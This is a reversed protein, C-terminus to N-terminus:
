IFHVPKEFVDFYNDNKNGEKLCIVYDTNSELATTLQMIHQIAVIMTIDYHTGNMFIFTLIQSTLANRNYGMDDLVIVVRLDTDRDSEGIDKQLQLRKQREVIETLTGEVNKEHLIFSDPIHRCFFRNGEETASFVCARPVKQKNLNYLLEVIVVSKGTNRKGIVVANGKVSLAARCDFRKLNVHISGMRSAMTPAGNDM